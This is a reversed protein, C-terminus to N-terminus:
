QQALILPGKKGQCLLHIGKCVDMLQTTGVYLSGVTVACFSHLALRRYQHYMRVVAIDITNSDVVHCM